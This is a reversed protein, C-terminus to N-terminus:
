LKAYKIQFFVENKLTKFFLYSFNHIYFYISFRIEMTDYWLYKKYM